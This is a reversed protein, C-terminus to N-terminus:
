TMSFFPNVHVANVASIFNWFLVAEAGFTPLLRSRWFSTQSCRKNNRQKRDGNGAKQKEM